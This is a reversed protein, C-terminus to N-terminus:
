FITSNMYRILVLGGANSEGLVGPINFRIISGASGSRGTPRNRGTKEIADLELFANVDNATKVSREQSASQQHHSESSLLNPLDTREGQRVRTRPLEPATSFYLFDGSQEGGVIYKM